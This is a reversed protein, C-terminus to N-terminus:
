VSRREKESRLALGLAVVFQSARARFAQENVFKTDVTVHATPDFIQVNVRARREIAKTLPALYASGGCVVIRGIEAEGTTALYFDLSRQIEGALADCASSIVQHVEQPVIDTPGGGCKYAEAQEHPVGCQKQVEETITNGANTIERSFASVGDSLMNLSTVSAGVNIIAVSGPSPGGQQHEYINQVCFANVDVVAPKLKADRLVSSFDNIEDRKAAVLLVDMQGVDARRRLVEFDFSMVKLDFPIHQRAEWEIQQDLEAPTMLPITIKRVIVSQGYIGVAVEKKTIKNETFVRELAETVAAPNMIHGDVITQPPLPVYGFREVHAKGKNERLQVVKIASSGVDVGVLNKGGFLGEFM